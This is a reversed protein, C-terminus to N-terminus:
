HAMHPLCVPRRQTANAVTAVAAARSCDTNNLCMQGGFPPHLMMWRVPPDVSLMHCMWTMDESLCMERERRYCIRADM